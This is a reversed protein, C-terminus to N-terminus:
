ADINPKVETFSIGKNPEYVDAPKKDNVIKRVAQVSDASEYVKKKDAISFMM